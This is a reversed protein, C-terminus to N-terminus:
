KTVLNYIEEWNKVINAQGTYDMNHGHEMLVGSLGADIGWNVNEPKDEIWYAGPYKKGYKESKLKESFHSYDLVLDRLEVENMVKESNSNFVKFENPHILSYKAWEHIGGAYLIIDSKNIGKEILKKAYKHSAGCTYNACYLILKKYKNVKEDDIFSKGFHNNIEMSGKTLIFDDSLTNIIGIEESGIMNYFTQPTIEQYDEDSKNKSNSTNIYFLIGVLCIILAIYSIKTVKM